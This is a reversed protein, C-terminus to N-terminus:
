DLEIIVFVRDSWSSIGLSSKRGDQFPIGEEDLAKKIESNKMHYQNLNFETYRRMTDGNVTMMNAHYYYESAQKTSYVSPDIEHYIV